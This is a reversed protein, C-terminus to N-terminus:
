ENHTYSGATNGYRSRERGEQLRPSADLGFQRGIARAERGREGERGWKRREALKSRSSERHRDAAEVTRRTGTRNTHGGRSM